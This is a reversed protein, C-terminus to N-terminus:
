KLTKSIEEAELELGYISWYDLQGFEKGAVQILIGQEVNIEFYNVYQTLEGISLFPTLARTNRDIVRAKLKVGMAREAFVTINAINNEFSLDGVHFPALEFESLINSGDDSTLLTADTYKGKEHIDSSSDGLWLHSTAGSTYKAFTTITDAFERIVWTQTPINFKGAVNSYTVGNVSVSDGFYIWWEEDVIEAFMESPNGARFFDILPGSINEPQGGSSRWAGNNDVFYIYAGHNNITRHYGGVDWTKKKKTQDYFYTSFETFILLKDWATGIGTIEESYDIDIFDSSPTWTLAGAEPVSSFYVRYPYKTGSIDCNAIYLRDRYRKIYKADPMDTVNTVTSFTTGTLSSSNIFGDTAGYGVMFCYGLFSEMDVTISAKNAWATEAATIETWSGGTSYFLQTDDSSSDDCTALMKQVTSSQRFNFLGGISKGSQLASGINKYGPDKLIAGIKYSIDVGNLVMPSNAPQVFPSLNTNMGGLQNLYQIIM